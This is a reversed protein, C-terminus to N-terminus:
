DEELVGRLRTIAADLRAKVARTQDQAQKEGSRAKDLEALLRTNETELRRWEALIDPDASPVASDLKELRKTLARDLHGIAMDLRQLATTLRDLTGFKRLPCPHQRCRGDLCEPQCYPPRQTGDIVALAM